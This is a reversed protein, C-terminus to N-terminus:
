KNYFGFWVFVAYPLGIFRFVEKNYNKIFFDIIPISIIWNNVLVIAFAVMLIFMLAELGNKIIYKLLLVGISIGWLYVGYYFVLGLIITFKNHFILSELNADYIKTYIELFFLLGTTVSTAILVIKFLKRIFESLFSIIKSM